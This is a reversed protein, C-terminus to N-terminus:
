RAWKRILADKEPYVEDKAIDGIKVLESEQHCRYISLDPGIAIEGMGCFTRKEVKDSM